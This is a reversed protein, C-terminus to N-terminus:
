IEAHYAGVPIAYHREQSNSFLVRPLEQDCLRLGFLANKFLGSSVRALNLQNVRHLPVGSLKKAAGARRIISAPPPSRRCPHSIRNPWCLRAQLILFIHPPILAFQFGTGFIV